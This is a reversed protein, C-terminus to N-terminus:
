VVEPLWGIEVAYITDDSLPSAQENETFQTNSKTTTMNNAVYLGTPVAIVALATAVVTLNMLLNNKKMTIGKRVQFNQYKKMNYEGSFTHVEDSSFAEDVIKDWEDKDPLRHNKM